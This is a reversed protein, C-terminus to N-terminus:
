FADHEKEYTKKTPAVSTEGPGDDSNTVAMVFPLIVFIAMVGLASAVSSMSFHEERLTTWTAPSTQGSFSALSQAV